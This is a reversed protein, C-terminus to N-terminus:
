KVLNLLKKIIWAIGVQILEFPITLAIVFSEFIYLLGILLFILIFQPKRILIKLIKM